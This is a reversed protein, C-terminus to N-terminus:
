AVHAQEFFRVGSTVIYPIGQRALALQFEMAHYHARYLVAIEKLACGDRHLRQIYEIIYNAQHEGDHLLACVPKKYASRTARLVKQFQFPNGAICSNAVELIEPVSRYNTELMFRRADPYREPFTLINRYDAGRWSYISQFDDGVVMLNRHKSSIMHVWQAQIPNTDQYEDVLVYLFQDQYHALIDPHKM